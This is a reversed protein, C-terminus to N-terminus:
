CGQRVKNGGILALHTVLDGLDSFIQLVAFLPTDVPLNAKNDDTLNVEYKKNNAICKVKGNSVDRIHKAIKDTFSLCTYKNNVVITNFKPYFTRITAATQVHDEILYSTSVLLFNPHNQTMGHELKDFPDRDSITKLCNLFDANNEKDSIHIYQQNKIGRYGHGPRNKIIFQPSFITNFFNNSPTASCGIIRRANIKIWEFAEYKTFKSPWSDLNEPEDLVLKTKLPFMTSQSEDFLLTYKRLKVDNQCSLEWIVRTIKYMQIQHAISIVLKSRPGNQTLATKVHKTKILEDNNNSKIESVEVYDIEPVNIGHENGFKKWNKNYDNITKIYQPIDSSNPVLHVFAEHRVFILYHELACMMPSKGGQCEGVIQGITKDDNELDELACFLDPYELRIFQKVLYPLTISKTM